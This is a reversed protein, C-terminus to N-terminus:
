KNFVATKSSYFPGRHKMTIQKEENENVVRIFVNKSFFKLKKAQVEISNGSLDNYVIKGNIQIADNIAKKLLKQEQKEKSIKKPKKGYEVEFVWKQKAM